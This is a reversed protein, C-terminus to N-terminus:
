LGARHYSRPRKIINGVKYYSTSPDDDFTGIVEFSEVIGDEGVKARIKSCYAEWLEERTKFRITAAGAWGGITIEDGCLSICFGEIEAGSEAFPMIPM